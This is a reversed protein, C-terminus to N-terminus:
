VYLCAGCVCWCVWVCALVRVCVWVCACVYACMCQSAGCVSGWLRLALVLVCAGICVHAWVCGSVCVCGCAPVLVHLCVRWSVCVYMCEGLCVCM